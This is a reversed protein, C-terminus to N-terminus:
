IDQSSMLKSYTYALWRGAFIAAVWCFIALRAMRPASVPLLGNDFVNKQTWRLTWLAIAILAMKIYFLPNTLAKTPYAMLLSVGSFVNIVLGFWLLPLYARMAKLPIGPAVGLIRLSIAIHMGALFGMGIAHLILMFPFAWLTVAERVWRSYDTHEVWILFPEM